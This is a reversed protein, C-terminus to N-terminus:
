SEDEVLRMMTFDRPRRDVALLYGDVVKVGEIETSKGVIYAGEANEFDFKKVPVITNDAQIKFIEVPM